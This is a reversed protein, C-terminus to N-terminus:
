LCGIEFFALPWGNMSDFKVFVVFTLRLEIIKYVRDPQLKRMCQLFVKVRFTYL